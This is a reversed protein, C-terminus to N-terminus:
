LPAASSTATPLALVPLLDCVPCLWPWCGFEPLSSSVCGKTAPAPAGVAWDRSDVPTFGLSQPGLPNHGAGWGEVRPRPLRVPITPRRTPYSKVEGGEEQLAWAGAGARQTPFSPKPLLSPQPWQSLAWLPTAVVWLGSTGSWPSSQILELHGCEGESMFEPTWGQVSLTHPTHIDEEDEGRPGQARPRSGAGDPSGAAQHSYISGPLVITERKWGLVM